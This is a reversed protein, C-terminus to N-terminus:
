KAVGQAAYYASAEAFEEATLEECGEGPHFFGDSMFACGSEAHHWYQPKPEPPAKERDTWDTGDTMKYTVFDDGADVQEGPVFDPIFVHSHCGARQEDVTLTKNWKECLWTADTSEHDVIPTAHVCSRCHNRGFDEKHCVSKENCFTCPWKEPTEAIKSPARQQAIINEIRADLKIVALPDLRIRESYLADNNKCVALYLCRDRGRSAMYKQCQAWHAPKAVQVGKKQLEKFNKENHTKFELVHIKTPAEPVGLVEGDLKGRCHGGHSYVKFQKGTDPDVDQVEVGEVRRLDAVLRGEYVNGTEFLRLKQGTLQEPKSAWRWALWIQRDCESGLASMSIGVSDWHEHAAERAKDIATVTSSTITPLIPM